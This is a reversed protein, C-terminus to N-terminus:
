GTSDLYSRAVVGYHASCKRANPFGPAGVFGDVLVTLAEYRLASARSDSEIAPDTLLELLGDSAAAIFEDSELLDGELAALLHRTRAVDAAKIARHLGVWYASSESISTGVASTSEGSAATPPSPTPASSPTDAEATPPNLVVGPVQDGLYQAVRAPLGPLLSMLSSADNDAAAAFAALRRARADGRSDAIVDVLRSHWERRFVDFAAEIGHGEEVPQIACVDVADVLAAAIRQPSTFTWAHHRRAFEFLQEVDGRADLLRLRMQITSPARDLSWRDIEDVCAEARAWDGIKLALVFDLRLAALSPARVSEVEPRSNLFLHMRELRRLVEAARGNECDWRSYGHPAVLTLAQSMPGPVGQPAVVRGIAIGDRKSLWARLDDLYERLDRGSGAVSLWSVRGSSQVVPFSSPRGTRADEELQALASQLEPTGFEQLWRPRLLRFVNDWAETVTLDTAV